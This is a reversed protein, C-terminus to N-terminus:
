KSLTLAPEGRVPSSRRVAESDQNSSATHNSVPRRTRRGPEGRVPHPRRRPHASSRRPPNPAPPHTTRCAGGLTSQPPEGRVPHPSDKASTRRALQQLRSWDRNILAQKKARTWKKIQRERELADIRTPFEDAFVFQVPRRKRTYGPILGQRHASESTLTTPIVPTTPATPWKLIYVYFPMSHPPAPGPPSRRLTVRLLFCVADRAQNSHVKHNSM